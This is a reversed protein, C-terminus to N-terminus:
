KGSLHRDVIQVVDEHFEKVRAGPSAKQTNNIIVSYAVRKGSDTNTVYGSLSQVGNIFGTKAHVLNTLKRGKFREAIKGSRNDAMSAVFADGHRPDKAMSALWSALLGVTVRNERSLGSGDSLVLEGADTGLRETVLMRVVAAGGQWSGPQGSIAKGMRKMLSEAYLNQSNVNCRKLAADLPTSVVAVTKTLDVQEGAAVMRVVPKGAAGRGELREALVQGFLMAPDAMTVEIPESQRLKTSISGSVTYSNRDGRAIHPDSSETAVTRATNRIELFAGGPVARVSPPGGVRSSPSIYFEVCNTHFNLGSVPACYWADLQNKPWSSHIAERDFVRDDLVIEKINNGGRAVIESAIRDVFEALTTGTEELLKPDAFGPDGDGVVFLTSDSLVFRTQFQFDKGLTILAAGSTLVKLNSAPIVAARENLAALTQGSDIDVICVAIEVPGLRAASLAQRLETQLPQAAAVGWGSAAPSCNRLGLGSPGAVAALGVIALSCWRAARYLSAAGQIKVGAVGLNAKSHV